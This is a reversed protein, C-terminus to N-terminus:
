QASFKRVLDNWTCWDRGARMLPPYPGVLSSRTSSPSYIHTARRSLGGVMSNEFTREHKWHRVKVFPTARARLARRVGASSARSLDSPDSRQGRRSSGSFGIQGQRQRKPLCNEYPWPQCRSPRNVLISQAGKRVHFAHFSSSNSALPRRRRWEGVERSRERRDFGCRHPIRTPRSMTCSTVGAGTAFTRRTFGHVCRLHPDPSTTPDIATAGNRLSLPM